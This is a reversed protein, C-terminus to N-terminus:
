LLAERNTNNREFLYGKLAENLAYMAMNSYHVIEETIEDKDCIKEYIMEPKLLVTKIIPMEHIHKLLVCVCAHLLEPANENCIYGTESYVERHIHIGILLENKRREDVVRGVSDINEPMSYQDKINLYDKLKM